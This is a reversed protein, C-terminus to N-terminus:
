VLGLRISRQRLQEVTVGGVDRRSNCCDIRKATFRVLCKRPQVACIRLPVWKQIADLERRLEVLQMIVRSVLRKQLLHIQWFLHDRSTRNRAATLGNRQATWAARLGPAAM